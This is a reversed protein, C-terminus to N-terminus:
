RLSVTEGNFGVGARLGWGLGGWLLPLFGVGARGLLSPSAPFGPFGPIEPYGPVAPVAPVAPVEPFFVCCCHTVKVVDQNVADVKAAAPLPFVGGLALHLRLGLLFLVDGTCVAAARCLLFRLVALLPGVSM